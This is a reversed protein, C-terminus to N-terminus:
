DICILIWRVYKFFVDWVESMVCHFEVCGDVAGPVDCEANLPPIVRLRRCEGREEDNHTCIRVQEAHKGQQNRPPYGCRAMIDQSSSNVIM